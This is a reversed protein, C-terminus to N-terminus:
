QRLDLFVSLTNQKPKGATMQYVKIKNYVVHANEDYRRIIFYWSIINTLFLSYKVRFDAYAKKTRMLM